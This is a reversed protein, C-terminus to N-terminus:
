VTLWSICLLVAGVCLTLCVSYWYDLYLEMALASMYFCCGKCHGNVFETSCWVQCFVFSWFLFPSYLLFLLAYYTILVILKGWWCFCCLVGKDHGTLFFSGRVFSLTSIVLLLFISDVYFPLQCSEFSALICCCVGPNDLTVRMQCTLM